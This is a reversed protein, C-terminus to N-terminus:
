ILSICEYYVLGILVIAIIVLTQQSATRDAIRAVAQSRTSQHNVQNARTVSPYVPTLLASQMSDPALFPQLNSSSTRVTYLLGMRRTKAPYIEDLLELPNGRLAPM